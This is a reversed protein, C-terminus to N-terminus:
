VISVFQVKNRSMSKHLHAKCLFIQLKVPKNTMNLERYELVSEKNQIYWEQMYKALLEKNKEKWLKEYEKRCSKCNTRYGDSKSKDKFFDTFPKSTKCKSCFKEMIIEPLITYPTGLQSGACCLKCVGNLVYLVVAITSCSKDLMFVLDLM